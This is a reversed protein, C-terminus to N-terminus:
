RPAAGRFADALAAEPDAIAACSPCLGGLAVSLVAGSVTASCELRGEAAACLVCRVSPDAAWCCRKFKRGSGCPCPGNRGPARAPTDGNCTM